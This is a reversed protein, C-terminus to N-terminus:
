SCLPPATFEGTVGYETLRDRWVDRDGCVDSLQQISENNLIINLGLDRIDQQMKTIWTIKPRGRKEKITGISRHASKQGDSMYSKYLDGRTSIYNNDNDNDNHRISFGPNCDRFADTLMASFVTSFLTPALVCGQKVGNSVPFADSLEGNDM